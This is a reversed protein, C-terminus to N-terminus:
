NTILGVKLWCWCALHDWTECLLDQGPCWGSISPERSSSLSLSYFFRKTNTYNDRIGRLWVDCCLEGKSLMLRGTPRVGRLLINRYANWVRWAVIATVSISWIGAGHSHFSIFHITTLPTLTLFINYSRGTRAVAVWPTCPASSMNRKNSTNGVKITRASGGEFELMPPTRFRHIGTRQLDKINCSPREIWLM